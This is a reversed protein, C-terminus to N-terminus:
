LASAMKKESERHSGLLWSWAPGGVPPSSSYGPPRGGAGIVAVGRTAGAASGSCHRCRRDGARESAPGWPHAWTPPQRLAGRASRRGQAPPPAQAKM